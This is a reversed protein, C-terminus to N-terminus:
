GLVGDMPELCNVCRVDKKKPDLHGASAGLKGLAYHYFEGDNESMGKREQLPAGFYYQGGIMDIGAMDQGEMARFWHAAGLGLRSHVGNDEVVHGIRVGKEEAHKVIPPWVEKVTELNEAVTKKPDRGVFTTIMNVGLM